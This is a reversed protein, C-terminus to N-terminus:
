NEISVRSDAADSRTLDIELGKGPELGLRVLEDKSPAFYMWVEEGVGLDQLADIEKGNPNTPLTRGAEKAHKRNAPRRIVRPKLRLTMEHPIRLRM